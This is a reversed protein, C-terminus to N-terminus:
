RSSTFYGNTRMDDFLSPEVPDWGTAQRTLTSSTPNDAAIFRALWGFHERAEAESLSRVPVGIGEAIIETIDRMRIGEEAVAHLRMGPKAHELGLRYLRAADNRHVAPWRNAGDGVFAAFGKRRALDILAPVFAHDGAGHVSAPLRVVAGRGGSSVTSLVTMESGGRIASPSDTDPGDNETGPSGPALLFTVSTSIFPKDTGRLAAAMTEIARRDTEAAAEYQSFDHIFAAHIVGDAIAAGRRLSELDELSGRHAEAGASVLSAASADSRALGLVQHKAAVLERVVASGIFGTAGTVFVRM